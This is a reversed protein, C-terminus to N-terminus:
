ERKSRDLLDSVKLNLGWLADLVLATVFGALAGHERWVLTMTIIYVILMWWNIKM